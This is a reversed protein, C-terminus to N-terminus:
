AFEAVRSQSPLIVEDRLAKFQEKGDNGTSTQAKRSDSQLKEIRKARAQFRKELDDVDKSLKDTLSELETPDILAADLTEIPLLNCIM